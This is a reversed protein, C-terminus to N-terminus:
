REQIILFLCVILSNQEFFIWPIKLHEWGKNLAHTHTCVCTHIFSNDLHDETVVIQSSGQRWLFKTHYRMVSCIMNREKWMM